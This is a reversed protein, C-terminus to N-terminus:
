GGVRSGASLDPDQDRYSGTRRSWVRNKVMALVHEPSANEMNRIKNRLSQSSLNSIWLREYYQKTMTVGILHAGGRVHFEKEKPKQDTAGMCMAVGGEAPVFLAFLPRVIVTSGDDVVRLTEQGWLPKGNATRGISLKRRGSVCREVLEIRLPTGIAPRPQLGIHLRTWKGDRPAERRVVCGRAPL